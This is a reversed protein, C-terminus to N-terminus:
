LIEPSFRVFDLFYAFSLICEFVERFVSRGIDGHVCALVHELFIDNKYKFVYSSACSINTSTAHLNFGNKFSTHLAM